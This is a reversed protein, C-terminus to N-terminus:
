VVQLLSETRRPATRLEVQVLDEACSMRLSNRCAAITGVWHSKTHCDISDAEVQRGDQMSRPPCITGPRLNPSKCHPPPCSPPDQLSTCRKHSFRAMWLAVPRPAREM